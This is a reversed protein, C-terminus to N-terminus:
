NETPQTPDHTQFPLDLDHTCTVKYRTM